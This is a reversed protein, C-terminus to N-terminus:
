MECDSENGASIKTLVGLFKTLNCIHHTSLLYVLAWWGPLVLIWSEEYNAYYHGQSM